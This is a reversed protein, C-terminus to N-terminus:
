YAPWVASKSRDSAETLKRYFKKNALQAHGEISQKRKRQAIKTGQLSVHVRKHEIHLLSFFEFLHKRLGTSHAFASQEKKPRKYFFIYM